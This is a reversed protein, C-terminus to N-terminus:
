RPAVAKGLAVHTELWAVHNLTDGGLRRGAALPAVVAYAGEIRVGDVPRWTAVADLEAALARDDNTPDFGAVTGNFARWPGRPDTMAFGHGQVGTAVREHLTTALGAGVHLLNGVAMQDALGRLLHNRAIRLEPEGIRDVVCVETSTAACPQGSSLDIMLTVVPELPADVGQAVRAVLHQAAIPTDGARGTYVLGQVDLDLREHVVHLRLGPAAWTRRDTLTDVSSAFLMGTVTVPDVPRIGAFLGTLVAGNTSRDAPTARTPPTLMTVFAEGQFRGVGLQGRVADFSRRAINFPADAVFFGGQIRMEQRGIRLWTTDDGLHAYGQHVAAGPVVTLSDREGWSRVDQLEVHARVPGQEVHLTGKANQLVRLTADDSRFSQATRIEPRVRLEVGGQLDAAHAALLLLIM